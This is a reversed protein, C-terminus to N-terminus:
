TYRTTSVERYLKRKIMLLWIALGCILSIGTVTTAETIYIWTLARDKIDMALDLADDLKERGERLDDLVREYDQEIYSRSAGRRLDNIRGLEEELPGTNAGFRDVFDTMGILLSWQISFLYFEERIEHMLEPDDPIDVGAALYLLNSIFDGYYPWETFILGGWAPTWDPTHVVGAGEGTEWFSVVPYGEEEVELFTVSGIKPDAVNMGTYAPMTEWPLSDMFDHKADTPVAKFPFGEYTEHPVWEVPLVDEVSTDWWDGWQIERGGVMIIGRGGDRAANAFWSIHRPQYYTKVTDSLIIVDQSEVLRNYTRPIFLRIYRSINPMGGVHGSSAPVPTVYLKPDLVMFQYPSGGGWADGLYIVRVRGTGSDLAPTRAWAVQGLLLIFLLPVFSRM